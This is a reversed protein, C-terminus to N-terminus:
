HPMYSGILSSFAKVDIPKTVYADFGARRGRLIDERMAYSSVAVVPIEATEKGQKLLSLAEYGDMGPLQIDMLILAPLTERALVLGKEADTVTLLRVGPLKRVIRAVLERSLPNDEIYLVNKETETQLLEREDREM